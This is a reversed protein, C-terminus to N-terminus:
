IILIAGTLAYQDTKGYGYQPVGIIVENNPGIIISKGFNIFGSNTDGFNGYHLHNKGVLVKVKDIIKTMPIRFIAGVGNFSNPSTIYLSDDINSFEMNRGFGSNYPIGSLSFKLVLQNILKIDGNIYEEYVYVKNFLHQSIAVFFRGQYSWSKIIKGFMGHKRTSTLVENNVIDYQIIPTPNVSQSSIKFQPIFFESNDDIEFIYVTGTNQETIYVKDGLKSGQVCSGFNGYDITQILDQFGISVIESFKLVQNRRGNLLHMLIHEGKILFTAGNEHTGVNESTIIIDNIGNRTIDGIYGVRLQKMTPNVSEVISLILTDQMFFKLTNTGPESILLFDITDISYKDVKQGFMPTIPLLKKYSNEDLKGIDKNTNEIFSWPILYIGGISDELPSSVVLYLEDDNMFKGITMSSGFNAWENYPSIIKALQPTFTLRLSLKNKTLTMENPQYETISFSPLNGCIPTSMDNLLDNLATTNDFAHILNTLCKQNMALLNWEGGFWYDQLFEITNPHNIIIPALIQPRNLRITLLESEIALQGRKVCNKLENYSILKDDMVGSRRIIELMDNEKPLEWNFDNYYSWSGIENAFDVKVWNNLTIFDGMTDLFNHAKDIDGNFETESLVKLLGTTRYGEVLSHWSTDVIQHSLVGLIFSKLAISDDSKANNENYGYKELWYKLSIKTFNPWHTFEAFEKWAENSPQCSYLADPFFVGTKWFSKYNSWNVSNSRKDIDNNALHSIFNLHAAIGAAFIETILFFFIIAVNSLGFQVLKM